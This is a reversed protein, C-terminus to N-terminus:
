ASVKAAQRRVRAEEREKKAAERDRQELLRSAAIRASARRTPPLTTEAELVRVAQDLGHGLALRVVEAQSVGFEKGLLFISDGMERTAVAVIQQPYKKAM